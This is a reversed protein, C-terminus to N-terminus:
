EGGIEGWVRCLARAAADIDFTSEARSRASAALRERLVEDSRLETIASALLAPDNPPILRASIGDEVIESTGGVDTAVIPLGAAAAELLVRGLPEQHAPHVLLDAENMIWAVDDRYGLRHLRDGLGASEFGAILNSEFDISEQKSSNRMGVLLYHVDSANEAVRVAAEALVNQGKRLGIQGITVVLIADDPLGLERKLRGTPPRPCFEACNVGNYLVRTREADLNQAVHFDRTAESVAILLRNRNLDDVAARSLKIIDRLHAITPISFEDAIAGTLRGMSLSNAHVIQPSVAAIAGRLNECVVDRPLRKEDGDRLQLPVRRIGRADLAETLPGESPAVAVFEFQRCVPRDLVALM